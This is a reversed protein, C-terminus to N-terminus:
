RQFLAAILGIVWFGIIIRTAIRRLAARSNENWLRLRRLRWLLKRYTERDNRELARVMESLDSLLHKQSSKFYEGDKPEGDFYGRRDRWVALLDDKKGLLACAEAQMCALYRACHDHPLDALGDRCTAIVEELDGRRLRSLCQM